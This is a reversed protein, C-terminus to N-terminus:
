LLRTAMNLLFSRVKIGLIEELDQDQGLHPESEVDLFSYGSQATMNEEFIHIAALADTILVYPHLCLKAHSESLVIRSIIKSICATQYWDSRM